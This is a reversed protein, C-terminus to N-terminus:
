RIAIDFKQHQSLSTSLKSWHIHLLKGRPIEFNISEDADPARGASGIPTAGSAITFNKRTYVGFYKSRTQEKMTMVQM